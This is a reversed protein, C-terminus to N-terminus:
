LSYKMMIFADKLIHPGPQTYIMRLSLITIKLKDIFVDIDDIKEYEVMLEGYEATYTDVMERCTEETLTIPDELHDGYRDLIYLKLEDNEKGFMLFRNTGINLHWNTYLSVDRAIATLARSLDVAPSLHAIKYHEVAKNGPDVKELDYFRKDLSTVSYYGGNEIQGEKCLNIVERYLMRDKPYKHWIYLILAKLVESECSTYEYGRNAGTMVIKEAIAECTAESEIRNIPMPMKIEYFDLPNILFLQSLREIVEAPIPTIGCQWEKVTASSVDLVAAIQEDSLKKMAKLLSLAQQTQM